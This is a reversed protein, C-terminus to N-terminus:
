GARQAEDHQRRVRAIVSIHFADLSYAMSRLLLAEESLDEGHEVGVGELATARTAARAALTRLESITTRLLLRTRREADDKPPAPTALISAPLMPTPVSRLWDGLEMGVPTGLKRRIAQRVGAVRDNTVGLTEGIERSTRGEAVLLLVGVERPTLRKLRAEITPIPAAM